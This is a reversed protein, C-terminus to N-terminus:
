GRGAAPAAESAPAPTSKLKLPKRVILQYAQQDKQKAAAANSSDAPMNKNHFTQAFFWEVKRKL